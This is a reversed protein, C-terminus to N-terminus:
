RGVVDLAEEREFMDMEMMDDMRFTRRWAGVGVRWKVDSWITLETLAEEVVKLGSCWGMTNCCNTSDSEGLANTVGDEATLSESEPLIVAAAAAAVLRPACAWDALGWFL